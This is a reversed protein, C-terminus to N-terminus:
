GHGNTVGLVRTATVGRDAAPPVLPLPASSRAALAAVRPIPPLALSRLSDSIRESSVYALPVRRGLPEGSPEAPSVIRSHAHSLGAAVSVVRVPVASCINPESVWGAIEAHCCRRACTDVRDPDGDVTHKPIPGDVDLYVDPRGSLLRMVRARAFQWRWRPWVAFSGRVGGEHGPTRPAGARCRRRIRRRFCEHTVM